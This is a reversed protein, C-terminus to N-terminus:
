PVSRPPSFQEVANWVWVQGDLLTAWVSRGDRSFGVAAVAAQESDAPGFTLPGAPRLVAGPGIPSSPDLELSIGYQVESPELRAHDESVLRLLVDGTAADWVIVSGDTAGSVLRAGNPSFAVSTAEHAHGTFTALREGTAAEWLAVAHGPVPAALRSGDPSFAPTGIESIALSPPAPGDSYTLELSPQGAEVDLIVVKRDFPLLLAARRGDPSWAVGTVIGAVDRAVTWEGNEMSLLRAIGDLCAILLAGGDPRFAVATLRTPFPIARALTAAPVEWLQVETHIALALWRGDASLAAHVSAPSAIMGGEPQGHAVAANLMTDLAGSSPTLVPGGSWPVVSSPLQLPIHWAERGSEADLAYVTVGPREVATRASLTIGGADSGAVLLNLDGISGSGLSQTPTLGSQFLRLEGIESGAVVTRGADGFALATVPGLQGRLVGLPQLPETRWLRVEGEMGGSALVTGDPSFALSRVAGRHAATNEAAGANAAEDLFVRGDHDGWALRRGDPSFVVSTVVPETAVTAVTSARALDWVRLTGDWSSSALRGGGPAIAVEIIGDDHGALLGAVRGNALDWLQITNDWSWAAMHTGDPSIVASVTEPYHGELTREFDLNALNGTVWVFEALCYVSELDAPPAWRGANPLRFTGRPEGSALDLLRLVGRLSVPMATEDTARGGLEGGFWWPTTVARAGDPSVALVSGDVAARRWAERGPDFLWLSARRQEDYLPPLVVCAIQGTPTEAVAAIRGEGTRSRILSGDTRLALHRWEWGRADVPCLELHRKAEAVSGIRLSADAAGLEAVYGRREAARRHADAAQRAQEARLYLAGSVIAGALLAVAIAATAAAATRHRRALKRIRYLANPPGASVPENGLHRDIDAAFESASQYRRSRDRELAHLVIWDLDERLLRRLSGVDASRRQALEEADSGLAQLRQSPRQTELELLLHRLEAIAKDRVGAPDFPLVGTLLEYLLVGLAYVDTRTDVDLPSPALQEPSMYAPTGLVVGFQTFLSANTLRGHLAKALGFDIVKIRPQGDVETVLVNSPKLDRHVIGKHHAHQVAGCVERFLALRDRVDLRRRDSYDTIPIGPVYEMVVYPRGDETTGADLVAAIASHNMLTLAEREAEFRALVERSSLGAKIVKVAVRRHIPEDQEALYVVGMGGEGLLELVAYSGIRRPLPQGTPPEGNDLSETPLIGDPGTIDLGLRLLCAPCVALTSSESYSAGCRPCRAM